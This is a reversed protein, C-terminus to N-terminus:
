AKKGKFRRRKTAVEVAPSVPWVTKFGALLQETVLYLNGRARSFAVYLKNRTLPAAEQLKKATFAESTTKNLVVCVDMHHDDGKSGGWNQSYCGYDHHKQYFLKITKDNAHMRNADEQSELFRMETAFDSHSQIDIGLHERIFNCITPSCRHSKALSTTDVRLGADAFRKKYKEYDEHLTANKRGDHSTVYTHQFFDGVLLIDVKCDCLRLILDFDYGGMDQVEDICVVDFYKEVRAAVDDMAQEAILLAIRSHYMWQAGDVYYDREKASARGRPPQNFTVGRTRWEMALVPRYCFGYLFSFYTKLVINPPMHGFKEIIKRRLNTFNNDTYTLLLFRRELDLGNVIRTTKGAGAVAFIVSKDM